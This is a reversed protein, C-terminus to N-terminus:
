LLMRQAKKIAEIFREVDNENNYISISARVTGTLGFKKLLPQTCHHGVRVAIGQQDLIQGVDSHHAGDLTFSIIAAKNESTGFFRVRELQQLEAVAMRMLSQEHEFVDQIRFQNLFGIAADLGFAGEIHPTGAEFKFPLHNYTSHAYDVTSIMSGGTQYPPMAMLLERRGYVVGM